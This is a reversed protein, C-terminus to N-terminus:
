PVEQFCGHYVVLYKGTSHHCPYGGKAGEAGCYPSMSWNYWGAQRAKKMSKLMMQHSYRNKQYVQLVSVGRVKCYKWRAIYLIKIRLYPVVAWM